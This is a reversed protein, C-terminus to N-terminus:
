ETSYLDPSYIAFLAEGKRVEKGTSDVYLKEIWGRFKTTVDALATENYDIVGVTRIVRNL